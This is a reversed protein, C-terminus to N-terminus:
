FEPKLSWAAVKFDLKLDWAEPKLSALNLSRAENNTNTIVKFEIDFCYYVLKLSAEELKVSWAELKLDWAKLKLGWAKPKLSGGDSHISILSLRSISILILRAENQLSWTQLPLRWAALKLRWVRDNTNTVVKIDIIIDINQCAEFKPSWAQPQIIKLIGTANNTNTTATIDIIINM